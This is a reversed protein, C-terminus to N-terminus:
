ARFPPAHSRLSRHLVLESFSEARPPPGTDHASLDEEDSRAEMQLATALVAVVSMTPTLTDSKVGDPLVTYLTKCCQMVQQGDMAGKAPKSDGSQCCAHEKKGQLSQAMFGLACHNSMVLWGMLTM